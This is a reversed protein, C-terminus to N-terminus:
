SGDGETQADARATLTGRYPNVVDPWYMRETSSPQHWQEMAKTHAAVAEDWVKAFEARVEQEHKAVAGSVPALVARLTVVFGCAQCGPDDIHDPVLGHGRREWEEVLAAVAGRVARAEDREREANEYRHKYGQGIKQVGRLYELRDAIHENLREVQARSEALQQPALLIHDAPIIDFDDDSIEAAQESLHESM